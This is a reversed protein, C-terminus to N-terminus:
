PIATGDAARALLAKLYNKEFDAQWRKKAEKYSPLNESNLIEEGFAFGGEASFKLNKSSEVLSAALAEPGIEAGPARRLPAPLDAPLIVESEALAVAREIINQLERINGPWHYSELMQMAESSIATVKKQNAKSFQELFHKALLAADGERERLPPLELTVVNLRYFLELRFRGAEVEKTLDKNTAAIVRVDFSVLRNSGLRRVQREQLARLLKAQLAAPMDGIEDLFISGGHACEFIGPKAAHADTFAGREHGFLESELLNEPLSVCDVPIFPGDKRRSNMHTVRAILEKGTGSEGHVLVNADTPAVKKVVELVQRLKQSTGIIKELGYLVGLKQRLRLNEEQLRKERLAKEIVILLQDNSFPKALYDFAGEKIALVATEVTAFATFLVVPVGADFEKVERLVELGDKGPMKLDTLVLHPPSNQLLPALREPQNLTLCQYGARSIVRRCNELMDIEDDIVLITEKM